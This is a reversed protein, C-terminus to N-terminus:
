YYWRNTKNDYGSMMFIDLMPVFNTYEYEVRIGGYGIIKYCDM